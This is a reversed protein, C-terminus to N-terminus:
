LWVQGGQAERLAQLLPDAENPGNYRIGNIFFTPTGNVGSAIGGLFDERVKKEVAESYMDEQFRSTDLELARAYGLLDTETLHDQHEFLLDHMQWFMDQLGAAEAAYAAQKAFPHIESLPFERYVLRLSDGMEQRIDPLYGFAYGCHPCEFDGYEVLTIPADKNGRIHDTKQIKQQLRDM